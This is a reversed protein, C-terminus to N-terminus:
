KIKNKTKIKSTERDQEKTAAMTNHVFNAKSQQQSPFFFNDKGFSQWFMDCIGQPKSKAKKIM